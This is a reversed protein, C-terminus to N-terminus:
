RSHMIEETLHALNKLHPNLLPICVDFNQYETDLELSAIAQKVAAAPSHPEACGFSV